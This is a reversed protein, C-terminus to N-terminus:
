KTNIKEAYHKKQIKRKSIYSDISLNGSGFAFYIILLFLVLAALELSQNQNALGQSLHVFFVAIFLIPLQIFAAIRTFFGIAMMFGGIIHIVVIYSYWWYFNHGNALQTLRDIDSAVIIGRVFLATGLFIRTLSYAINNHSNLWYITSHLSNM